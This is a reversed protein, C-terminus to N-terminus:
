LIRNSFRGTQSVQVKRSSMALLEFRMGRRPLPGSNYPTQTLRRGPHIRLYSRFNEGTSLAAGYAFVM